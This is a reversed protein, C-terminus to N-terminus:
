ATWKTKTCTQWHKNNDWYCKQRFREFNVPLKNDNLHQICLVSNEDNAQESNLLMMRKWIVRIPNLMWHNQASAQLHFTRRMHSKREVANPQQNFVKHGSHTGNCKTEMPSMIKTCKTADSRTARQMTWVCVYSFYSMIMWEIIGNWWQKKKLQISNWYNWTDDNSVRQKQKCYQARMLPSLSQRRCCRSSAAFLFGFFFSYFVVRLCLAEVNVKQWRLECRMSVILTKNAFSNWASPLLWLDVTERTM